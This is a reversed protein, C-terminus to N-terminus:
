PDSDGPCKNATLTVKHAAVWAELLRNNPKTLATLFESRTIDLWKQRAEATTVSQPIAENPFRRAFQAPMTRWFRTIGSPISRIETNPLLALEKQRALLIQATTGNLPPQTPMRVTMGNRFFWNKWPGNGMNEMINGSIPFMMGSNLRGCELVRRFCKDASLSVQTCATEIWTAIIEPKVDILVVYGTRRNSPPGESYVCERLLAAPWGLIDTAPPPCNNTADTIAYASKQANKVLAIREASPPQASALSQTCLLLLGFSLFSLISM